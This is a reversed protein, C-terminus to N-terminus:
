GADLGLCALAGLRERVVGVLVHARIRPLGHTNRGTDRQDDAEQDAAALDPPRIDMWQVTTGVRRLVSTPVLGAGNPGKQLRKGAQEGVEHRDTLRAELQERGLQLLLHMADGLDEDPRQNGNEGGADAQKERREDDDEDEPVRM